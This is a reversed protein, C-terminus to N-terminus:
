ETTVSELFRELNFRNIGFANKSALSLVGKSFSATTGLIGQMGLLFQVFANETSVGGLLALFALTKLNGDSANRTALYEKFANRFSGHKHNRLTNIITKKAQLGQVLTDFNGLAPQAPFKGFYKEIARQNTLDYKNFETIFETISRLIVDDRWWTVGKSKEMAKQIVEIANGKNIAFGLVETVFKEFDHPTNIGGLYALLVLSYIAKDLPYTASKLYSLRTHLATQAASSSFFGMGTTATLSQFEDVFEKMLM